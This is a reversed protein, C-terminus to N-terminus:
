EVPLLYAKIAFNDVLTPLEDDGIKATALRRFEETRQYDAWDVWNPGLQLYSEGPNVVAVAYVYDIGASRAAEQSLASAAAVGYIRKDAEDATSACVVISYRDKKKFTLPSPLDVRHFGAYEFDETFSALLEGDDPKAAKKGLKYIRFDVRTNEEFTRTSVSTLKSKTEARFVNASTINDYSRLEWFGTMAPLFDYQAVFFPGSAFDTDFVMTEPMVLSKDYYSLYFFGTHEGQENKFGWKQSNADYTTGDASVLGDKVADTESGWSNKVIWAGDGPPTTIKSREEDFVSNGNEDTLAKGDKDTVIVKHTFKAAPYDDDWGVICAAHSPKADEFTYHAFNDLNLYVGTEDEGHVSDDASYEVAVAHGSLIERKMAQMGDDNIGLWTGYPADDTPDGRLAVEPLINGDRLTYGNFKARMSQGDMTAPITWDDEGAYYNSEKIRDIVKTLYKEVSKAIVSTELNFDDSLSEVLDEKLEDYHRTYYDSELLGSNGKYPVYEELIPGTGSAFLTTVYISLGGCDYTAETESEGEAQVIHIGEGAQSREDVELVPHVAFWALHRESLDLPTEAFTTGASSLISTEAAAIGGFAWCTGFPRQQKVPTVVGQDRLDYHRPIQTQTCLVDDNALAVGGAGGLMIAGMLAAGVLGRLVRKKGDAM